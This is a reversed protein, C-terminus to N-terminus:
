EKELDCKVSPHDSDLISFGELTQIKFIKEYIAMKSISGIKKMPTDCAICLGSIVLTKQNKIELDVINEWMRRPLRCKCCFAEDEACRKKRSKQRSQLYAALDSGHVLYPKKDDIRCLGNKIWRPIVNSHLGFLDAIEHYRYTHNHKILRTNYTRRKKAM